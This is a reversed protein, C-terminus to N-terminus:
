ILGIDKANAVLQVNNSAKLVDKLKNLRKEISSLSSPSIGKTIFLTAIQNQSLGNSLHRLLSVDYSEIEFSPSRKTLTIIKEPFYTNGKVVECVAKKLEKLGDRGKLIYSVVNDIDTLNKIMTNKEEVSCIIIPIKYGKEVIKEVLDRGSKLRLPRHDHKFSLDTILLDFPTNNQLDNQIKLYAEDCYKTLVVEPVALEKELMMSIGHGVSDLDEVVLIKKFM